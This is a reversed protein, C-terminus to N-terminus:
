KQPRTTDDWNIAASANPDGCAPATEVSLRLDKGVVAKGTNRLGTTERDDAFADLAPGFANVPADGAGGAKSFVTSHFAGTRCARIAAVFEQEGGRLGSVLVWDGGPLTSIARGENGSSSEGFRAMYSARRGRDSLKIVMADGHQEGAANDSTINGTVYVGGAGDNSLANFHMGPVLASWQLASGSANLASVFGFTSTPSSGRAGADVVSDHPFQSDATTGAVHANGQSDIRIATVRYDGDSFYTLYSPTAGSPKTTDVLIVIGRMRGSQAGGGRYAGATAQFCATTNGAIGALGSDTVAIASLQLFGSGCSRILSDYVVGGDPSYKRLEIDAMVHSVTYLNGRSDTAIADANDAEIRKLSRSYMQLLTLFRGFHDDLRGTSGGGSRAESPALSWRLPMAYRLPACVRPDSRSFSDCITEDPARHFRLGPVEVSGLGNVVLQLHHEGDPFPSRLNTEISVKHLPGPLRSQYVVRNDILVAYNTILKGEHPNAQASFHFFEDLDADAPNEAPNPYCIFVGTGPHHIECTTQAAADHLLVIAFVALVGCRGRWRHSSAACGHKVKLRERAPQNNYLRYVTEISAQNIGCRHRLRDGHSV